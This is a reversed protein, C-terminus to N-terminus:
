GGADASLLLVHDDEALRTEPDRVFLDGNLNVAISSEVGDSALLERLSPFRSSLADLLEGLTGADVELESVGARERPIGFFEVHM